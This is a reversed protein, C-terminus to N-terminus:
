LRRFMNKMNVINETNFNSVNLEKLSGCKFFMEMSDTVNCTNLNSINKITELNALNAFLRTTTIPAVVEEIVVNKIQESVTSDNTWFLATNTDMNTTDSINETKNVLTAGNRTDPWEDKQKIVLTGDSYLGAYMTTPKIINNKIDDLQEIVNDLMASENKEAEEWKNKAEKAKKILGSDSFLTNISIGALILLVVITIVLAILTIGKTNKIVNKM